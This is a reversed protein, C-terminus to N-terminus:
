QYKNLKIGFMQLDKHKFVCTTGVLQSKLALLRRSRKLM